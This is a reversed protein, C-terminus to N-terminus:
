TFSYQSRLLVVVLLLCVGMGAALDAADATGHFLGRTLAVAVSIPNVDIVVQLWRPM